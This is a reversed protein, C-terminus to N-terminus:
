ETAVLAGAVDDSSIAESVTQIAKLLKSAASASGTKALYPTPKLEDDIGIFQVYKESQVNVKMQPLIRVNLILRLSGEARMILRGSGTNDDSKKVNVRISGIGREKWEKNGNMKFLKCRTQFVSEEDEEGTLHDVLPIEATKKEKLNHENEEGRDEEDSGAGSDEDGSGSKGSGDGLNKTAGNSPGGSTLLSEFSESGISKVAAGFTTVQDALKAGFTPTNSDVSIPRKVTLNSAMSTSSIDSDRGGMSGAFITKRETAGLNKLAPPLESSSAGLSTYRVAGMEETVAPTDRITADALKSRDRSPSGATSVAPTSAATKALAAFSTPAAIGDSGISKSTTLAAFSTGAPAAMGGFTSSLSLRPASGPQKLSEFSNSGGTWSSSGALTAFSSFSAPGASFSTSSAMSSFATSGFTAVPPKTPTGPNVKAAVPRRSGSLDDSVDDWSAGTSKLFINKSSMATPVTTTSSPKVPSEETPLRSAVRKAAPSATTASSLGFGRTSSYGSRLDAGHSESSDAASHPPSSQENANNSDNNDDPEDLKRKRNEEAASAPMEAM